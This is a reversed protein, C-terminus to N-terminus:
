NQYLRFHRTKMIKDSRSWNRFYRCMWVANKDFKRLLGYRLSKASTTQWRIYLDILSSLVLGLLVTWHFVAQFVALYVVSLPDNNSVKLVREIQLIYHKNLRNLIHSLRWVITLVFHTEERERQVGKFQKFASGFYFMYEFQKM